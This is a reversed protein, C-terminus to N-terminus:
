SLSKVLQLAHQTNSRLGEYDKNELIEKTLLKSGMGVGVAGAEFWGRLNAEEAEVGGTVMFQLEPFLDKIASIFSPGLLNGPFLKVICAGAAEASAIETPTMCGPIWLLGKEHVVAAVEANMSPCIIFDADADIYKIAQERTKITGIGLLLGPMEKDVLARLIKFNSLAAEGRNTYEIVRIGVAYFAQLIDVSVKSDPHYYLPLLKQALLAQIAEEKKSM